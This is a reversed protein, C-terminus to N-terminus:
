EKSAARGPPRSGSGSLPPAKNPVIDMVCGGRGGLLPSHRGGARPGGLGRRAQQVASDGRRPPEGGGAARGADDGSGRSSCARGSRPSGPRCAVREKKLKTSWAAAQRLSPVCSAVTYKKTEHVRNLSDELVLALATLSDQPMVEPELTLNLSCLESQTTQVTQPKKREVAERAATSPFPPAPPPRDPETSMVSTFCTKAM